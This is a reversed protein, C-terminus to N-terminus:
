FGLNVKNEITQPDVGAQYARYTPYTYYVSSILALLIIVGKLKIDM